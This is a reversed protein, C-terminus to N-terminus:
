LPTRKYRREVEAKEIEHKHKYFLGPVKVGLSDCQRITVEMVDTWNPDAGASSLHNEAWIEKFRGPGFPEHGIALFAAIISPSDPATAATKRRQTEEKEGKAEAEGEGEELYTSRRKKSLKKSLTKALKRNKRRYTKQYIKQRQYESQYKEWNCVTIMYLKVPEETTIKFLIKGTRAFLDFTSLLDIEAGADLAEFTKLPFGVYQNGDMGACVIGPYRSRGAMALLDIWFARQARVDPLPNHWGAM